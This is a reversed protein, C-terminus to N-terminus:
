FPSEEGTEIPAPPCDCEGGDHAEDRHRVAWEEAKQELYDDPPDEGAHPDRRAEDIADEIADQEARWDEYDTDNM